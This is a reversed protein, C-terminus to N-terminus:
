TKVQQLNEAVSTQTLTRAYARTVISRIQRPERIFLDGSKKLAQRVDSVTPFIRNSLYNSKIFSFVNQM